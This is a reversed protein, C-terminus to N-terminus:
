CVDSLEKLLQFITFVLLLSFSVILLIFVGHKFLDHKFKGELFKRRKERHNSWPGKGGELIDAIYQQMNMSHTFYMKHFSWMTLTALIGFVEAVLAYLFKDSDLLFGSGALLTVGQVISLRRIERVHISYHRFAACAEDYQSKWEESTLTSETM